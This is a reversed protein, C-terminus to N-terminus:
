IFHSVSYITFLTNLSPNMCESRDSESLTIGDGCRQDRESAQRQQTFVLIEDSRTSM